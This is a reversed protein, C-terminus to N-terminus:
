RHEYKCHTLSSNSRQCGCDCWSLILPCFLCWVAFCPHLEGRGPLTALLLMWRLTCLSHSDLKQPQALTTQSITYAKNQTPIQVYVWRRHTCQSLNKFLTNSINLHLKRKLFTQGHRQLQLQIESGSRHLDTYYCSRAHKAFAIWKVNEFAYWLFLGFSDQFHIGWM